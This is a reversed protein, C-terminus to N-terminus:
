KTKKVEISKQGFRDSFELFMQGDGSFFLEYEMQIKLDISKIVHENNLVIQGDQHTWTGIGSGLNPLEYYYKYNEYLWIEIPYDQNIFSIDDNFDIDMESNINKKNIINSYSELPVIQRISERNREPNELCSTIIFLLFFVMRPM